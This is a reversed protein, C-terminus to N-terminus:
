HKTWWRYKVDQWDLTLWPPALAIAREWKEETGHVARPPPPASPVVKRGNLPGNLREDADSWEEYAPSDLWEEFAADAGSFLNRGLWETYTALDITGERWKTHAAEVEERSPGPASTDCPPVTAEATPEGHLSGLRSYGKVGPPLAERWKAHAAEVEEPSPGVTLTM